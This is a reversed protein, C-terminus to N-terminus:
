SPLLWVETCKLALRSIITQSPSTSSWCTLLMRDFYDRQVLAVEM